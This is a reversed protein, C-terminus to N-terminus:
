RRDERRESIGCRSGALSLRTQAPSASFGELRNAGLRTGVPFVRDSPYRSGQYFKNIKGMNRSLWIRESHPWSISVRVSSSATLSTECSFAARWSCRSVRRPFRWTETTGSIPSPASRFGADSGGLAAYFGLLVSYSVARIGAWTSPTLEPM